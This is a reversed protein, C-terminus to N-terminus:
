PNRPVTSQRPPEQQASVWKAHEQSVLGEIREALLALPKEASAYPGAQALFLYKEHKLTECTSRYGTWNAHFQNLQQLGEALVIVIGLAASYPRGWAVAALVPILVGCSFTLVKLAKYWSKNRASNRDYWRIQDELREVTPNSAETNPIV